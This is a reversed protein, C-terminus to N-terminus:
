GDFRSGFAVEDLVTWLPQLAGFTDPRDFNAQLMVTRTEGSPLRGVFVMPHVMAPSATGPLVPAPDDKPAPLSAPVRELVGLSERLRAIGDAHMRGTWPRQSPRPEQAVWGTQPIYAEWRGDLWFRHMIGTQRDAAVLLAGEPLEPIPALAVESAPASAPAPAANSCGTAIAGMLVFM